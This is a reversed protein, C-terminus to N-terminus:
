DFWYYVGPGIPEVIRMAHGDPEPIRMTEPGVVVSWHGFGGGYTMYVVHSEKDVRVYSPKLRRVEPPTHELPIEDSVTVTAEWARIAAVDVHKRCWDVMGDGPGFQGLWCGGVFVFLMGVVMLTRTVNQRRDCRRLQAFARLIFAFLSAAEIFVWMVSWGRNEGPYSQNATLWYNIYGLRFLLMLLCFTVVWVWDLRKSPSKASVLPQAPHGVPSPVTSM